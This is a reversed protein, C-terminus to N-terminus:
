NRTWPRRRDTLTHGVNTDSLAALTNKTFATNEELILM